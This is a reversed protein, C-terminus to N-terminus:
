AFFVIKLFTVSRSFFQKNCKKFRHYFVYTYQQRKNTGVDLPKFHACKCFIFLNFRYYYHHSAMNQLGFTAELKTVLVHFYCQNSSVLTLRKRNLFRINQKCCFDKRILTVDDKNLHPFEGRTKRVKKREFKLSLLLM